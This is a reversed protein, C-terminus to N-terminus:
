AAVALDQYKAETTHHSGIRRRELLDANQHYSIEIAERLPVRVARSVAECVAEASVGETLCLAEVFWAPSTGPAQQLKQMLLGAGRVARVIESRTVTDSTAVRFFPVIFCIEM